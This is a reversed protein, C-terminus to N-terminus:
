ERTKNLVVVRMDAAFNLNKEILIEKVITEEWKPFRGHGIIETLYKNKQVTQNGIKIEVKTNLQDEPISPALEFGRLIQAYIKYSGEVSRQKPFRQIDAGEWVYQVNMLIIGPCTGDNYPSKLRYWQPNAERKRCEVVPIRIYGIREEGM